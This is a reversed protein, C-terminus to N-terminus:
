KSVRFLFHFTRRERESHRTKDSAMELPTFRTYTNVIWVWPVFLTNPIRKFILAVAAAISHEKVPLLVFVWGYSKFNFLRQTLHECPMCGACLPVCYWCVSWFDMRTRLFIYYYLVTSSNSNSSLLLWKPQTVVIDHSICYPNIM